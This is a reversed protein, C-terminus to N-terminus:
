KKNKNKQYIKEEDFLQKYKIVRLEEEEEPTKFGLYQKFSYYPNIIEEDLFDYYPDALYFKFRDYSSLAREWDLGKAHVMFRKIPYGIIILIILLYLIKM